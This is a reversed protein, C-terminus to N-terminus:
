VIETITPIIDVEETVFPRQDDGCKLWVDFVYHGPAIEATQDKTWLVTVRGVATDISCTANAVLTGNPKDRMQSYATCGTLDLIAKTEGNRFRYSRRFTESQKCINKRM